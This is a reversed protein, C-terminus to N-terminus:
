TESAYSKGLKIRSILSIDVNFMEAIEKQLYIGSKLIQKIAKVEVGKLLAQPNNSGKLVQEKQFCGCSQTTKLQDIRLNKLTGCKCKCLYYPRKRTPTQVWYSFKIVKFDHFRKGLIKQEADKHKKDGTVQAAEYVTRKKIGSHKVPFACRKCQPNKSRRLYVPKKIEQQGCECQCLWLKKHTKDRSLITLKGIKQGARYLATACNICKTTKRSLVNAKYADFINGCNCLCELKLITKRHAEHEEYPASFERIVKFFPFEKGTLDIKKHSM